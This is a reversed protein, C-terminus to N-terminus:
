AQSLLLRMDPALSEARHGNWKLTSVPVARVLPCVPWVFYKIVNPGNEALSAEGMLRSPGALLECSVIGYNM